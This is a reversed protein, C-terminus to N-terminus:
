VECDLWIYVAMLRREERKPKFAMERVVSAADENDGSIYSLLSIM